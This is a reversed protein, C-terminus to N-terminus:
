LLRRRIEREVFARDRAFKLRSLQKYAEAAEHDAGALDHITRLAFGRSTTNKINLKVYAHYNAINILDQESFVPQFEKAMTEADQAGIKFCLMTGVNGFVADRLTTDEHSGKGGGDMKTIQSIYQHAVILGLRYKRAESLISAFSETVFNQFEDVYLFFDRREAEPINVRSMAAMQIKSVIIMGVLKSNLDGLKGKSLNVLLIKGEDMVKRFDFGSKPQGIINRIQANTVFPGFKAAFYPIIEEKERAGSKAYEQEWFARVATNTVKGIKLKRYEDDTFLRMIDILTANDEKDSMLTLVGNRFYNQLRPGMIEEGYLKIFISLAEQAMFEKQDDTEAELINVGMPRDLDGPNFVIVDEARSKPVYPLVAEVLDGHPDVLCLGKGERLDQRIMQELLTSKGTGSKGIVYFHRMRDNPLIRVETNKGRYSNMGLLLGEKPLNSPPPTIKFDQWQIAPSPNYRINPFHYLGSVEEVSLIQRWQWIGGICRWFWVFPPHSFKRMEYQKKIWLKSYNYSTSFGNMDPSSFQEFAAKAAMGYQEAKKKTEASALIRIIIDFGLKTAKEEIAKAREQLLPSSQNQSMSDSKGSFDESEVGQFLIRFITGMWRFPATLIGGKSGGKDNIMNRAYEIGKKHWNGNDPRMLFQIGVKDDVEIKSLANMFNNLPDAEMRQVTRIPLFYSSSLFMHCSWYKRGEEVITPRPIYEIVADSYYSAIQKEAIESAGKPIGMIFKILGDEVLYECSFYDQGLVWKNIQKSSHFAFLASYLQNMTNAIRIYDKQSGFEEGVTERDEKSDRKPILVQLFEMEKARAEEKRLYFFKFLFYILGVSGLLWFLIEIWVL